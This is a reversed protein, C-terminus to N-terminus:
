SVGAYSSSASLSEHISLLLEETEEWGLCPDTLSISPSPDSSSLLQNGRQLHSEMMVGIIKRNGGLRQRLISELVVAQKLPDKRSNGHSCDILIGSELGYSESIRLAESISAEDYNPKTDSGRLVIHASPNGTSQILGIKGQVDAQLFAHSHKATVAGQIVHELNGEISNKFGVPMPLSSALQRHIQSSSTRAGIFGWSILDSFYCSTLPDLFESALPIGTKVLETLLERGKYLGTVIDSKGTFFPDYLIGKWGLCTRPKEVHARMVLFCTKEITTQLVQLRSAYELASDKDHLSCPGTIIVFRDEKGQIFDAITKRHKEIRDVEISLLPIRQKITEPSPITM